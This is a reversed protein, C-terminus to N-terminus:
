EGPLAGSVVNESLSPQASSVHSPGTSAVTVMAPRVSCASGPQTM